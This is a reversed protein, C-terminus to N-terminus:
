KQLREKFLTLWLQGVHDITYNKANELAAVQMSQMLDTDNALNVVKKAMAETDFPPILLANKGDQVIDRIAGYSDFAVPVAGFSQAELIVNPFGEYSSPMMFISADRYYNDPVQRGTLTINKFGEREVQAKLVEEFDGYGVVIFEWDPLAKQVEKWFPLLLDSRKQSITLRGVHVIQKKKEPLGEVVQPISNPLSISKKSKYKGIFSEMEVRNHPTLLVFLDNKDMIELLHQKQLKHVRYGLISLTFKNIVLPYLWAPVKRKYDDKAGIRFGWLTNRLCGLLVFNREQQLGYLTDRLAVEFPMQNIVVEPQVTKVVERLQEMNEEGTGDTHVAHYLTGYVEKLHGDVTCSYYHVEIGSQHFFRGLKFTTHQVGGTSPDFPPTLVFLLKM